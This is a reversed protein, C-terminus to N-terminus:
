EEERMDIYCSLKGKRRNGEGRRVIDENADGDGNGDEDGDGDGGGKM